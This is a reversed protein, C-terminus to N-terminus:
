GIFRGIMIGIALVGLVVAIAILLAKKKKEKDDM